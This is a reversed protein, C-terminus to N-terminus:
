GHPVAYSFFGLDVPSDIVEQISFKGAGYNKVGVKYADAATDFFESIKGDRMLAFKGRHTVLLEPLLKVFEAYNRQVESEDSKSQEPM